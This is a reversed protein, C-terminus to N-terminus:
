ESIKAKEQLELLNKLEQTSLKKLDINNTVAVQTSGSHELMMKESYEDRFRTKLFFILLATDSRKPDFTIRGDQNKIIEGRIKANALMEFYKKAAETGRAKAEKFEPFQDVWEYLTKRGHNIDAGFSSFSYGKAMHTVLMECYEKKYRTISGGGLGNPNLKPNLAVRAKIHKPTTM